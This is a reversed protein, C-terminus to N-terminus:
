PELAAGKADFAATEGDFFDLIGHAPGSSLIVM